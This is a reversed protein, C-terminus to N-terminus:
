STSLAMSVHLLTAGSVELRDFPSAEGSAFLEQLGKINSSMAYEVVKSKRSVTRYTRLSIKWGDPAKLGAFELAKNGLWAPSQFGWTYSKPSKRKQLASGYRGRLSTSAGKNKVEHNDAESYSRAATYAPPKSTNYSFEAIGLAIRKAILEPQAQLLARIAM